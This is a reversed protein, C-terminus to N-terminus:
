ILTRTGHGQSATFKSQALLDNVTKVEVAAFSSSNIINSNNDAFENDAAILTNTATEEAYVPVFITNMVFCACLIVSIIGEPKM